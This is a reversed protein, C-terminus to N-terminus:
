KWFVNIYNIAHILLFKSSVISPDILRYSNESSKCYKGMPFLKQLREGILNMCLISVAAEQKAEDLYELKVTCFNEREPFFEKSTKKEYRRLGHFPKSPIQYNHLLPSLKTKKGYQSAGGRAGNM